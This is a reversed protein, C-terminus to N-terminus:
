VHFVKLLKKRIASSLREGAKFQEELTTQLIAFREEFLIEDDEINAAGVYRGPTLVHNHSRIEDLTTAKCFGPM